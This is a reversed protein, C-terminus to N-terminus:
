LVKSSGRHAQPLTINSGASNVYTLFTEIPEVQVSTYLSNDVHGATMPDFTVGAGSAAM